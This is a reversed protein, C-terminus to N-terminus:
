RFFGGPGPWLGKVMFKYYVWPFVDKKLHFFLRRPIGQDLGLRTFTEVPKGDYKFEALLVSGYDTVVPCSTYGDYLLGRGAGGDAGRMAELLNRVLVPVQATIAAATKSTPLSSADGASWVNAFRRSRTTGPDVDVFGGDDALGSSRVFGHPGMKPVVHMFDFERTVRGGDPTAFTARRGDITVLDHQFLGEVGRERRLAELATSYRPVGFMTPTGTAFTIDIGPSSSSARTPDYLGHKKWYDLALWMIKQPGGGCKITGTPHTFIATGKHLRQISTWVKECTDHGYTSSVLADPDALAEPLGEISDYDIKIGPVVVLHEYSIRHGSGLWITNDSPLMATVSENYFKLKRHVLSPLPRRLEERTKIGAGVLTWGPQYHHWQAPDIIAIDDQSFKGARLLQGSISLGASGGGIM